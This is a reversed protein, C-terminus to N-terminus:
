AQFGREILDLVLALPPWSPRGRRIAAYARLMVQPQHLSQLTMGRMVPQDAPLLGVGLGAVIMDQVLELSDARHAVRPEFGALSGLVRIM